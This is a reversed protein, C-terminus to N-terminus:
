IARLSCISIFYEAFLGAFEVVGPPSSSAKNWRTSHSIMLGGSKGSSGTALGFGLSSGFFGLGVGGEATMFRVIVTLKSKDIKGELILDYVISTMCLSDKGGSFSLYVKKAKKFVNQVRQRSATVVDIRSEIKRIAM